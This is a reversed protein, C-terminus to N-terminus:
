PAGDQHEACRDSGPECPQGCATLHGRILAGCRPPRVPESAVIDESTGADLGAGTGLPRQEKDPPM